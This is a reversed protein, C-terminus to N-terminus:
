APENEQQRVVECKQIRGLLGSEQFEVLHEGIMLAKGLPASGLIQSGEYIIIKQPPHNKWESSAGSTATGSPRRPPTPVLAM